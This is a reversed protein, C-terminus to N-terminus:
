MITIRPNGADVLIGTVSQFVLPSIDLGCDRRIRAMAQRPKLGMKQCIRRFTKSNLCYWNYFGTNSILVPRATGYWKISM